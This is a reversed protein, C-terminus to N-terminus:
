EGDLGHIAMDVQRIAEDYLMVILKGQSATKIQTDRYARYPNVKSTM